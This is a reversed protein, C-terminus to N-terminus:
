EIEVEIADLEKQTIGLNAMIDQHSICNDKNFTEIRKNTEVLLHYDEVIEMLEEYKEVSMLVCTPVNNKVVIKTGSVSVEEFIKNAEGKNFRSIPIISKIIQSIM